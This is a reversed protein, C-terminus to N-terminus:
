LTASCKKCVRYKKGGSIKFGIRTPQSCKPCILMANAVAIPKTIEVIGGERHQQSPRVHRKVVNVGEVVVQGEPSLIKRVAGEHGRAKGSIIKVKDGQRIKM